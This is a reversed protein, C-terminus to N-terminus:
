SASSSARDGVGYFLNNGRDVPRPTTADPLDSVRVPQEARNVFSFGSAGYNLVSFSRTPTWGPIAPIDTGVANGAPDGAGQEADGNVILNQGLTAAFLPASM